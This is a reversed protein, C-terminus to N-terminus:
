DSAGSPQATRQRLLRRLLRALEVETWQGRDCEALRGLAEGGVAETLPEDLRHSNRTAAILWSELDSGSLDGALYCCIQGRIEALLSSPM